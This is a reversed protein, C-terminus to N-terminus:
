AKICYLLAVNRPRTETGGTADTSVDQSGPINQPKPDGDGTGAANNFFVTHTHSKFEDEQWSGMVRGADVGRENDWGRVFEGRLDPLNFTSSGDGAGYTEGVASFLVAYDTRSVETGDCPLWGTPASSMGFAMVSGAPAVGVSALLANIETRSYTDVQAATVQHPNDIRPPHNFLEVIKSLPCTCEATETM